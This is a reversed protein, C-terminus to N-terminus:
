KRRFLQEDNSARRRGLRSAQSKRRGIEDALDRFPCQPNLISSQPNLISSQPDRFSSASEQEVSNVFGRDAIRSGCDDIRLRMVAENDTLFMSYGSGRAIFKVRPDTQDRNSEFLMPLKGYNQSIRAKATADPEKSQGNSRVASPSPQDALSPRHLFDSLAQRSIIGAVAVALLAFVSIPASHRIPNM